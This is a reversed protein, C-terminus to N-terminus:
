KFAELNSLINGRQTGFLMNHANETNKGYLMYKGIGAYIGASPVHLTLRKEWNTGSHNKYKPQKLLSGVTARPINAPGTRSSDWAIAHDFCFL